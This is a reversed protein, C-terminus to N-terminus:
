AAKRPRLMRGLEPSLPVEISPATRIASLVQDLQELPSLSLDVFLWRKGKIECAGGSGSLWDQRVSYGLSTAARVAEELLEVTHM